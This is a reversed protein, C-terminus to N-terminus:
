TNSIYCESEGGMEQRKLMVAAAAVLGFANQMRQCSKSQQEKTQHTHLNSKQENCKM